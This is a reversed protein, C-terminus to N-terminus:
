DCLCTVSGSLKEINVCPEKGFAKIYTSKYDGWTIDSPLHYKDIDKKFEDLTINYYALCLKEYRGSAIVEGDELLDLDMNKVLYYRQEGVIFSNCVWNPQQLTDIFYEDSLRVNFHKEVNNKFRYSAKRTVRAYQTKIHYLLQGDVVLYFWLVEDPKYERDESAYADKICKTIYKDISTLM